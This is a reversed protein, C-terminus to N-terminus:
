ANMIVKRMAEMRERAKSIREMGLAEDLMNLVENMASQISEAYAEMAQYEQKWVSAEHEAEEIDEQGLFTQLTEIDNDDMGFSHLMDLATDKSYAFMGNATISNM